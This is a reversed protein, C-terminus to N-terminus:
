YERGQAYYHYEETIKANCNTEGIRYISVIINKDLGHADQRGEM